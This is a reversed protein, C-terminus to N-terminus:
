ECLSLKYPMALLESKQSLCELATCFSKETELFTDYDTFRGYKIVTVNDNLYKMLNYTNMEKIEEITVQKM